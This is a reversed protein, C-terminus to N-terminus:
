IFFGVITSRNFHSYMLDSMEYNRDYFSTNELSFSVGVATNMSGFPVVGLDTDPVVTPLVDHQFRADTTRISM